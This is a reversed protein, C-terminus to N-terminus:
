PLSHGEALLRSLLDAPYDELFKLAEDAGLVVREGDSTLVPERLDYTEWDHATASAAYWRAPRVKTRDFIPPKYILLYNRVAGGAFVVQVAALRTFGRPVVLLWVGDVVRGLAARLRLRADPDDLLGALQRLERWSDSLPRAAREGAEALRDELEREQDRLMEIADGIEPIERGDRRLLDAKLAEKRERLQALEAEIADTDDPGRQGLVDEADLEVLQGLVAREFVALPFQRTTARGQAGHYNTLQRTRCVRGSRRETRTCAYYASGDRADYIMRAFLDIHKGLRRGPRKRRDTAARALQFQKETVVPPFYGEIPPGQPKGDRTRPQYEGLARRDNLIARVYVTNWAPEVWWGSAPRPQSGKYWYGPRGAAAQENLAALEEETLPKGQRERRRAYRALTEEDLLRGFPPVGEKNLRKVLRAVGHGNAALEFIYRIAEARAPVLALTYTDRSLGEVACWAPVKRTALRGTRAHVRKQEWAAGVRESKLKSEGHGRSLEMVARMIDFGNSKDTLVLEQPRLQVIRVGAMLIGTLLNCAPVEEERSLRDLNEIILYSGRPVRGEEVLKLFAALANRDPSKRHAGRYASTGLDRLTTVTDLRAGNATCWALADATQRRLSDGGGQKPDSFRIYSFATSQPPTNRATM